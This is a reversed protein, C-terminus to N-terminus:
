GNTGAGQGKDENDQGGRPRTKEGEPGENKGPGAGLVCWSLALTLSNSSLSSINNNLVVTDTHYSLLM